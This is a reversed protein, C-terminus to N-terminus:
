MATNALYESHYEFYEKIKNNTSSVASLLEELSLMEYQALDYRRVEEISHWHTFNRANRWLRARYM